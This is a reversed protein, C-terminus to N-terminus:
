AAARAAAVLADVDEARTAFSTVMRAFVEDDGVTDIGPGAGPWLHFVAGAAKVKDNLEAPLIPFVLNADCGLPVRVGPVEALGTALREAMLNAKAANKLWLDDKLYAEMQAGLYRGKSLLQGGRMRRYAFDEALAHDFFVVAELALAGNKTAGFSLADIGAKWTMEAPTCQLSVLANAFRAGDMHVKLGREHALGAIAEIEAVQYVTGLESAQTLSVVAPKSNHEGRVFSNLMAEVAEVTLINREAKIGYLKAGGTFMEPAGCEDVSIHADEHVLVANYPQAMTSLALGNAATGSTVLYVGVEREFVENLATEARRTWDDGAYAPATLTENAEGIAALIAADIGYVNDSTFNM